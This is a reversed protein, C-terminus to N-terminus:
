GNKAGRSKELWFLKEFPTDLALALELALKVSPVFKEKEIAIITQRTVGIVGALYEQTFNKQTRIEKLNNHLNMPKIWHLAYKVNYKNQLSHLTHNVNSDKIFKTTASVEPLKEKL